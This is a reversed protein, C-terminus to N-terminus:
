LELRVQGIGVAVQRDDRRRVFIINKGQPCQVRARLVQRLDRGGIEQPRGRKVVQFVYGARHFIILPEQRHVVALKGILFPLRSVPENRDIRLVCVLVPYLDLVLM